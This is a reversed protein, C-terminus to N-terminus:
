GWVRQRGALMSLITAPLQQGPLVSEVWTAGPTQVEVVHNGASIKKLNGTVGLDQLDGSGGTGQQDQLLSLWTLCAQEIDPPTTAWGATYQVHVNLLGREFRWYRLVVARDTFLFGPSLAGSSLPIDMGCINVLSVATVPRDPLMLMRTGGGSMWRDYSAQAVQYGLWVQIAASVASITRQLPQDGQGDSTLELWALANQVTTLDGAAM